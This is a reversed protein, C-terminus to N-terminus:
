LSTEPFVELVGEEAIVQLGRPIDNRRPIKYVKWRLFKRENSHSDKLVEIMYAKWANLDAEVRGRYHESEATTDTEDPYFPPTSLDLDVVALHRLIRLHEVLKLDVQAFDTFTHVDCAGLLRSSVVSIHANGITDDISIEQIDPCVGVVEIITSETM